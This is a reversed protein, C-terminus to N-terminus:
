TGTWDLFGTIRRAAVRLESPPALAALRVHSNDPQGLGSGPTVLVSRTELLGSAFKEDTLPTRLSLYLYFAGEPKLCHIRPHGALAEYVADRRWRLAGGPATKRSIDTLSADSLAPPVASQAPVNPCLRLSALRTLTRLYADGYGAPRTAVMWGARYGPLRCFKSLGGFTLCLLDPALSALPMHPVRTYRIEDSLVALGHHRAVSAMGRLTETPWVAGTPNNPNIAVVAHTRPGARVSLDTIDPLWGDSEDCRYPVPTGGNLTVFAAWVPYGPAPVLVEDGPDLLAQLTLSALESVGNGLFTDRATVGSLGRRCRYHEAVAERAEETGREGSYSEATSLADRVARVVPEPAGLGHAAPDGLNLDIIPRGQARLEEARRVLPGRLDYHTARAARSPYAQFTTIGASVTM